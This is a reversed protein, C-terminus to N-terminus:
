VAIEWSLSSELFAALSNPLMPEQPMGTRLALSPRIPTVVSLNKM